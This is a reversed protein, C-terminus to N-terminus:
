LSTVEPIYQYSERAGVRCQVPTLSLSWSFKTTTEPNLKLWLYPTVKSRSFVDYANMVLNLIIIVVVIIIIIIIGIFDRVEALLWKVICKRYKREFGKINNIQKDLGESAECWMSSFLQSRIACVGLADYDSSITSSISHYGVWYIVSSWMLMLNMTADHIRGHQPHSILSVALQCAQSGLFCWQHITNVSGVCTCLYSRFVPNGKFSGCILCWVM